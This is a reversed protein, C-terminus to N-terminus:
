NAISTQTFGGSITEFESLIAESVGAEVLRAKLRTFLESLIVDTTGGSFELIWDIFEKPSQFVTMKLGKKAATNQIKQMDINSRYNYNKLALYLSRQAGDDSIKNIFGLINGTSIPVQKVEVWLWPEGIENNVHVDGVKSADPDQSNGQEVQNEGYLLDLLASGFAQGVKGAGSNKEVFDTIKESADAVDSWDSKTVLVKTPSKHIKKRIKFLYALIARADSSTLSNIANASEFFSEWHTILSRKVGMNQTIRSKYTFPQNNLPQSSTARLDIGQEKCFTAVASGLTPAAYGKASSGKKIELVDLTALDHMARALLLVATMALYTKPCADLELSAIRSIWQKAPDGHIGSKSEENIESLIQKADNANISVM